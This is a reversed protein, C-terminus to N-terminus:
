ASGKQDSEIPTMIAEYDKILKEEAQKLGTVVMRQEEFVRVQEEYENQLTELNDQRVSLDNKTQDLEPVMDSIDKELNILQFFSSRMTAVHSTM